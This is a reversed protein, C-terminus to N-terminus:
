PRIRDRTAACKIEIKVPKGNIISDIDATGKNTSGHTYRVKELVKGNALPIKEIRAHGQSNLRNVYHGNFKLWDFVCTTLGNTTKDTYPKPLPVGFDKAAQYKKLYFSNRVELLEKKGNM